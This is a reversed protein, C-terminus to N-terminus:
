KFLSEIEKEYKKSIVKRKIKLTPTIEGEASSWEHDILTWSKIQEANGLRKNYKNIEVQIRKKIRPLRTMEELSTYNIGKVECYSKLFNFDPVILAGAFKQNEGVVMVQDIFLSEKLMDEILQPSVYKGFSTKFIEKKRGTLKLQGEPEIQGLDGTHFWGDADITQRTLEPDKFYGKMVNPGKVLVEDDDAIKVTVGRLVPGVTGFKIGNKDFNSVAIVPSTETLGYGEIIHIGACTFLRSLRPQLAAGGSVIISIKGGLASRWKEYVLKNYFKRKLEYLWGNAGDLEYRLALHYAWWYIWRKIGKMKHGTAVLRDNIKELLRPVTTLIQPNVEVMNDTITGISEVYYVSIGLYQYMYNMMREYVHCLPLYSIARAEEGYPPIYSVGIFNSILNAHTLMVGKPLGTTGSTYILTAVDNTTISNRIEDLRDKDPFNKGMGILESLHRADETDKYAFVGKLGPIEPFIHKIKRLLEQGSVFVYKVEAHNMIYKYDSESITPYIPVHIAGVQQIAMDVFNWEARNPSIQAITDGRQVGLALFGYSINDVIERYQQINYKVWHGNDKSALVDDKPRYKQEYYPLLDFIRTIEM